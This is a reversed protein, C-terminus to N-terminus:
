VVNRLRFDIPESFIKRLTWVRWRGVPEGVIQLTCHGM